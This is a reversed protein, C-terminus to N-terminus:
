QKEKLLVVTGTREHVKGSFDVFSCRWVYTGMKLIEDGKEFSGNFTGDWAYRAPNSPDYKDTEFVPTGWRDFVTLLFDDSSIGSGVIYFLDNKNDANPTFATPAYFTMEDYITIKKSISDKCNNVSTATLKILYDGIKEYTHMPSKESSTKGDEFDWFYTHGGITLNNFFINTNFFPTFSPDPVFEAIPKEFVEITHTRETKKCGYVSTATLTVNYKGPNTYNHSIIRQPSTKGDGFNWLYTNGGIAEQFVIDTEPCVKEASALPVIAPLPYVTINLTRIEPGSYESCGDYILFVCEGSKEPTFNNSPFTILTDVNTKQYYVEYSPYGETVSANISIREGECIENKSASVQSVKLAPRINVTIKQTQATCGNGDAVSITYETQMAPEVSLIAGNYIAGYTDTWTYIYGSGSGESASATRTFTEGKCITGGTLPAIVVQNPETVTIDVVAFCGEDDSITVTYEGRSLNNIENTDEETNWTYTYFGNGGEVNYIEISGDAGGYCSVNKITTEFTLCQSQATLLNASAILCSVTLILIPRLKM